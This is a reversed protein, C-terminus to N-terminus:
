LVKFHVLGCDSRRCFLDGSLLLLLRAVVANKVGVVRIMLIVIGVLAWNLLEV